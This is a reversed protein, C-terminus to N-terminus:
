RLAVAALASFPLVLSRGGDSLIRVFDKGVVDVVGVLVIADTRTLRVSDGDDRAARLVHGWGLRRGVAGSPDGRRQAEVVALIAATAVLHDVRDAHLHVLTPTVLVAEGELRGAGIVELVVHGGLLELWGLGAWEGDRLEEVLADREILELDDAQAELDAFLREWRVM